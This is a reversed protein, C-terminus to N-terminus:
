NGKRFLARYKVRQAIDLVPWLAVSVALMWGNHGNSRWYIGRDAGEIVYLCFVFGAIFVFMNNGETVPVLMTVPAVVSAV